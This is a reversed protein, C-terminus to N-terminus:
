SHRLQRRELPLAPRTRRAARGGRPCRRRLACRPCHKRHQQLAATLAMETPLDIRLRQYPQRSALSHSLKGSKVLASLEAHVADHGLAFLGRVRGDPCGAEELLTLAELAWRPVWGGSLVEFDRCSRILALQVPTALAYGRRVAHLVEMPQLQQEQHTNM